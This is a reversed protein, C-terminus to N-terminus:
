RALSTRALAPRLHELHEEDHHYGSLFVGLGMADPMTRSTIVPTNEDSEGVRSLLELTEEGERLVKAILEETTLAAGRALSTAIREERKASQPRLDHDSDDLVARVVMDCFLYGVALHALVDRFTWGAVPSALQWADDPVERAVQVIEQRTSQFRRAAPAVWSAFETSM